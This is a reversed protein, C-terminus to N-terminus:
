TVELSKVIGYKELLIKANNWTEKADGNASNDVGM